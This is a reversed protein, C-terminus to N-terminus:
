SGRNITGTCIAPIVTFAIISQPADAGTIPSFIAFRNPTHLCACLITIFCPSPLLIFPPSITAFVLIEMGICGHWIIIDDCVGGFRGFNNGVRGFGGFDDFDNGVGGFGGFDDFDSGVGGFGGFDDGACADVSTHRLVNESSASISSIPVLSNINPSDHSFSFSRVTSM